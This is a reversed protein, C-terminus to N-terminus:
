SGERGTVPIAKSKSKSHKAIPVSDWLQTTKTAANQLLYCPNLCFESYLTLILPWDFHISWNLCFINVYVSQTPARNARSSSDDGGTTGEPTAAQCSPMYLDPRTNTNLVNHQVAPTTWTFRLKLLFNSQALLFQQDSKGRRNTVASRKWFTRSSSKAGTRSPM